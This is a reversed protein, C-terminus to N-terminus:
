ARDNRMDELLQDVFRWAAPLATVMGVPSSVMTAVIAAGRLVIGFTRLLTARSHLALTLTRRHLEAQAPDITSVLLSHMDGSWAVRTQGILANDVRTEVVAYNDITEQVQAMFAGFREEAQAWGASITERLGFSEGSTRGNLEDVLGLLAQEPAASQGAAYSVGGYSLARIRDPARLLAVEQSRLDAAAIALAARAAATDAPLHARWIPENTESVGRTSFSTAPAVGWPGPPATAGPVSDILEFVTM